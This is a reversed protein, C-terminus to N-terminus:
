FGAMKWVLKKLLNFHFLNLETVDFAPWKGFLVASKTQTPFIPETVDFAPWKGFRM